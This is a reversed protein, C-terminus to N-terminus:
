SGGKKICKCKSKPLFHVETYEHDYVLSKPYQRYVKHRTLPRKEKYGLEKMKEIFDTKVIINARIRFGHGCCCYLTQIGLDNNLHMIEEAICQDVMFDHGIFVRRQMRM